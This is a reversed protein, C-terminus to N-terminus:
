IVLDDLDRSASRKPIVVIGGPSIFYKKRDEKRLVIPLYGYKMLHLNTLLRAVRGNGDVFPHDYALWFHLVIARIVTLVAQFTVSLIM